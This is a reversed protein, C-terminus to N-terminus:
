FLGYPPICTKLTANILECGAGDILFSATDRDTCLGVHLEPTSQLFSTANKDICPGPNPTNDLIAFAISAVIKALDVISRPMTSM